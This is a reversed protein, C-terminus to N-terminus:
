RWHKAANRAANSIASLMPGIKAKARVPKKGGQVAKVADSPRVISELHQLTLELAIM